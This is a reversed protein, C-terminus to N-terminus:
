RNKEFNDKFPALEDIFKRIDMINEPQGIFFGQARGCGSKRIFDFQEKTEVGEILTNIKLKNALQIICDILIANEREPDFDKLFKMDLKILDFNFEHLVNLSSYGSGFDDLWLKFGAKKLKELQEKLVNEDNSIASETIEIIILDRDVGYKDTIATIEKVVNTTDFDDRSINVSVPLVTLGKEKREKIKRCVQEVMYFDLKSILHYKELIPVFKSPLLLGLKPDEWRALGEFDCIQNTMTRLVPQYYLKIWHKKIATDLNELIYQEHHYSELLSSDFFTIAKNFHEKISQCALRAYDCAIIYDTGGNLLYVGAKLRIRNIGTEWQFADIASKIHTEVNEESDIVVFHDEAFRCVLNVPFHKKLIEGAKKILLDGASYGFISNYNKMGLIDFYIFAANKNNKHISDVFQSVKQRFYTMNPLSTLSDFYVSNWKDMQISYAKRNDWFTETVTIIIEHKTNPEEIVHIEGDSFKTFVRLYSKPKLAYFFESFTVGVEFRCLPTIMKEAANNYFMLEETDADVIAIATSSADLFNKLQVEATSVSFLNEHSAKTIDSFSVVAFIEGDEKHHYGVAHILSYEKEGRLKARYIVNYPTKKRTFNRAAVSIRFVDDPHLNEYLNGEKRAILQEKTTGPTEFQMFGDSVCVIKMRDNITRYVIIPIPSNGIIEALAKYDM